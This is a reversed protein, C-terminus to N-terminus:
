LGSRLNSVRFRHCFLVPTLSWCRLKSIRERSFRSAKEEIRLLSRNL